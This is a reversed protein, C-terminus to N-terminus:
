KKYFHMEHIYDHVKDPLLYRASKGSRIDNRIATSSIQMLPAEVWTVGPHERFTGGDFGPRPYVFIRCDNLIIEYNKWRNLTQLSDAGMILAFNRDPYKESLAVLTNITYSPEPLSFEINSAKFKPNDEIAINVLALRHHGALLSTKNKLPNQPSVVFWVEDLPSWELMHSAIILHGTHVPNFSGFFLGTTKIKKKKESM